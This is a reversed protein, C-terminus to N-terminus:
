AWIIGTEKKEGIHNKPFLWTTGGTPYAQGSLPQEKFQKIPFVYLGV